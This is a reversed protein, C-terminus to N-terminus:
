GLSLMRVVVIWNGSPWSRDGKRAGTAREWGRERVRGNWNRPWTREGARHKSCQTAAAPQNVVLREVARKHGIIAGNTKLMVVTVGRCTTVEILARGNEEGLRGRTRRSWNEQIGWTRRVPNGDLCPILVAIEQSDGINRWAEDNSVPKIKAELHPSKSM